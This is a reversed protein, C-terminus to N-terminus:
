HQIDAIRLAAAAFPSYAFLSLKHHLSADVKDLQQTLSIHPVTQCASRIDWLCISRDWSGTILLSLASSWHVCKVAEKHEGIIREDGTELHVSVM